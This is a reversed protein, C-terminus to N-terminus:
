RPIRRAGAQTVSYIFEPDSAVLQKFSRADVAQINYTVMTRGGGGLANNPIVVGSGSPNIVEPGAEGVLYPKNKMIPGGVARKSITNSSFDIGFGFAGFISSLIPQIVALKLAQAIMEKVIKRFFDKFNDLVSTGDM